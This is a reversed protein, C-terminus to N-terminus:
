SRLYGLFLGKQFLLEVTPQAKKILEEKTIQGYKEIAIQIQNLLNISNKQQHIVEYFLSSIEVFRIKGEESDRVLILYYNGPEPNNYDFEKKFVPYDLRIARYHPNLVVEQKTWIGNTSHTLIALDEESYVEIELWEFELLDRLFPYEEILVMRKSLIFEKFEKPMQWVQNHQCKHHKFFDDVIGKWQSNFLQRTIPYATSLIDFTVNFVLRRYHHIKDPRSADLEKLEGTRAYSAISRQANKTELSLDGNKVEM